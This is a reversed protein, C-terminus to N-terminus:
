AAKGYYRALVDLAAILVGGGEQPRLGHTISWFKLPIEEGIVAWALSGLLSARGGLQILARHVQENNRFTSLNESCIAGRISPKTLDLAHLPDLSARHFQRRFDEGAERMEPSIAGRREFSALIDISKSPQSPRGEDDAIAEPVLEIGRRAREPTPPV